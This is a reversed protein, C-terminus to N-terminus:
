CRNRRTMNRTQEDSLFYKEDVQKEMIDLLTFENVIKHPTISATLLNGNQVTGWSLWRISSSKLPKAAMTISFGESTKLSYFKHSKSKLLGYLKLFSRVEQIVSGKEQDQFVSHNALFDQVFSRFTQYNKQISKPQMEGNQNMDLTKQTSKEQM